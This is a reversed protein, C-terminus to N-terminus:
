TKPNNANINWAAYQNWEKTHTMVLTKQHDSSTYDNKEDSLMNILKEDVHHHTRNAFDISPHPYTPHNLKEFAM